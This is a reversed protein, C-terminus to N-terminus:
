NLNGLHLPGSYPERPWWFGVSCALLLLDAIAGMMNGPGTEQYIKLCGMHPPPTPPNTCLFSSNALWPQVLDPLDLPFHFVGGEETKSWLCRIFYMDHWPTHQTSLACHPSFLVWREPDCMLSPAPPLSGLLPRYSHQDSFANGSESNGLLTGACRSQDSVRLENMLLYYSGM